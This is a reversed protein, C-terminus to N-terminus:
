RGQVDRSEWEETTFDKHCHMCTYYKVPSLYDDEALVGAVLGHNGRKCQVSHVYSRVRWLFTNFEIFYVLRNFYYTIKFM